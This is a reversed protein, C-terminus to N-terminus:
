LQPCLLGELHHCLCLLVAHFEDLVLLDNRPEVRVSLLLQDLVLELPAGTGLVRLGRAARLASGEVLEDVVGLQVNELSSSRGVDDGADHPGVEFPEKLLVQRCKLLLRAQLPAVEDRHVGREDRDVHQLLHLVWVEQVRALKFLQALNVQVHDFPRRM